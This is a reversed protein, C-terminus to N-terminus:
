PEEMEPELGAPARVIETLTAELSWRDGTDAPAPASLRVQTLGIPSRAGDGGGVRVAAHLFTFVQRLTVGRLHVVSPRELLKGDPLRQSAAPEIREIADEPVAASRASSEIRRTLDQDDDEPRDQPANDSSDPASSPGLLAALRRCEALDAAAVNAADRAEVLRTYGWLTAGSLAVAVTTLVLTRERSTM